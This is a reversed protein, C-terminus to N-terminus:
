HWWFPLSIAIGIAIVGSIAGYIASMQYGRLMDQVYSVLMGGAMEGTRRNIIWRLLPHRVREMMQGVELRTSAALGSALARDFSRRAARVSVALVTGVVVGIIGALGVLVAVVYNM